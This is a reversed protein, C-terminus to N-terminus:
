PKMAVETVRCGNRQVHVPRGALKAALLMSGMREVSALCGATDTDKDTCAAIRFWVNNSGSCIFEGNSAGPELLTFRITGNKMFSLANVQKAPLNWAMATGALLSFLFASCLFMKWNM